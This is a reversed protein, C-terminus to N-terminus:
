LQTPRSSGTVIGIGYVWPEIPKAFQFERTIPYELRPLGM